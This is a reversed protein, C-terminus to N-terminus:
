PFKPRDYGARHETIMFHSSTSGRETVPIGAGGHYPDRHAAVLAGDPLGLVRVYPKDPGDVCPTYGNPRLM